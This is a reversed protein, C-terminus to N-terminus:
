NTISPYQLQEYLHSSLNTTMVKVKNNMGLKLSGEVVYEMRVQPKPHLRVRLSCQNTFMWSLFFYFSSSQNENNNTINM